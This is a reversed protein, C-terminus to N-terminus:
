HEENFITEGVPKREVLNSQKLKWKWSNLLPFSQFMLVQAILFHLIDRWCFTCCSVQLGFIVLLVTNAANWFRWVRMAWLEQLIESVIMKMWRNQLVSIQLSSRNHQQKINRPKKVMKLGM